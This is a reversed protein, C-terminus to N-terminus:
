KGKREWGRETTGLEDYMGECKKRKTQKIVLM